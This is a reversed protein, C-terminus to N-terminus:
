FIVCVIKEYFRVSLNKRSFMKLVHPPTFQDGRSRKKCNMFEAHRPDLCIQALFIARIRNLLVKSALFIPRVKNMPVKPALFKPRVRNSPVKPALFITSVM